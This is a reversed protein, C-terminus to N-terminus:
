CCVNGGSLSTVIFSTLCDRNSRRSPILLAIRLTAVAGGLALAAAIWVTVDSM